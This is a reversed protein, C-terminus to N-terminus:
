IKFGIFKLFDVKVLVFLLFHPSVMLRVGDVLRLLRRVISTVHTPLCSRGRLKIFPLVEHGFLGHGKPFICCHWISGHELTM